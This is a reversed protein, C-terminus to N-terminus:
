LSNKGRYLGYMEIRYIPIWKKSRLKGTTAFVFKFRCDENTEPVSLSSLKCNELRIIGKKYPCKIKEIELCDLVNTLVIKVLPSARLFNGVKCLDLSTDMLARTYHTIDSSDSDPFGPPIFFSSEKCNMLSYIGKNHPCQFQDKDICSLVGSLFAKMIVNNRMFNQVKCFDVTSDSVLKSYLQSDPGDAISITIRATQRLLVDVTQNFTINFVVDTKTRFKNYTVSFYKPDAWMTFDFDVVKAYKKYPCQIKNNDGCDLLKTLFSKIMVSSRLFNRVKCFDVTSDSLVRSYITSEPSETIKLTIRGTYLGFIEVRFIQAWKNSQLKGSSGLLLKFRYNGIVATTSNPTNFSSVKCNTLRFPGKKYPCKIANIELCELLKTLFPKIILNSRLFSKVKCFDVSSDSLVRSYDRSEPGDTIAFSIRATQRLLIDVTQNFLINFILDTNSRTKNYSVLCYKEDSWIKFDIDLLKNDVVVNMICLTLFIELKM